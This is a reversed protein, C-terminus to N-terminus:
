KDRYVDPPKELKQYRLKGYFKANLDNEMGHSTVDRFM